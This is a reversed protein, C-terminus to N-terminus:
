GSAYRRRIELVQEDTLIARGHQAGKNPKFRGKSMKDDVNQQNTGLFLHHPSVCAPTDCRHLVHLGDPIPGFHLVWSIRHTQSDKTYPSSGISGYGKKNKAGLWIWCGTEENKEVRNFIREYLPLPRNM